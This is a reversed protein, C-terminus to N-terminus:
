DYLCERRINIRLSTQYCCVQRLCFAQHFKKRRWAMQIVRAAKVEQRIDLLRACLYAVYTSVIKEDPITNSMDTSKIM